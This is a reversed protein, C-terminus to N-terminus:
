LNNVKINGISSVSNNKIFFFDANEWTVDIQKMVNVCGNKKKIEHNLPFKGFAIM